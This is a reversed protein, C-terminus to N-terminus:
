SIGRLQRKFATLLHRAAQTLPIGKVTIVGLTVDPPPPTLEICILGQSFVPDTFLARPGICLRDARHMLDKMLLPSSCYTIREPRDIGQREMWRLLQNGQSGASLNLAWQASQLEHWHKAGALPHHIRCAISTSVSAIKEFDVDYPLDRPDAIVIAFDIEGQILGPLAISPLGEFLSIEADPAIREFDQFAKAMATAAALPTIAISVRIGSGGRLYRIEEKARDLIASSLRARELLAQGAPTFEIGRYSRSLLEAGVETELAKLAKTLATQSLNIQRAAARISGSEAVQILARLQHDRM